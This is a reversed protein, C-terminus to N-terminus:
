NKLKMKFSNGQQPLLLLHTPVIFVMEYLTYRTVTTNPQTHKLRIYFRSFHAHPLMRHFKRRIKLSTAQKSSFSQSKKTTIKADNETKNTRM